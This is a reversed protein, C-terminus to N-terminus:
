RKLEVVDLTRNYASGQGITVWWIVQITHSGASLSSMCNFALVFPDNANASTGTRTATIYLNGDIVLGIRVRGGAV